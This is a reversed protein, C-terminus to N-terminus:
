VQNGLKFGKAAEGKYTGQEDGARTYSFGDAGVTVAMESPASREIVPKLIVAGEGPPRLFQVTLSRAQRAPDAVAEELARLILAMVFGGLPGRPALSRAALQRPRYM